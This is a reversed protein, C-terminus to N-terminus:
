QPIVIVTVERLIVVTSKKLLYLYIVDPPLLLKGGPARCAEFTYVYMFINVHTVKGNKLM